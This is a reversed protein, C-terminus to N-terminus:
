SLPGHRFPGDQDDVVFRFDPFAEFEQQSTFPVPDGARFRAFGAELFQFLMRIIKEQQVDAQRVAVTEVHELLNM